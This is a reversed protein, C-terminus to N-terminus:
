GPILDPYKGSRIEGQFRFGFQSCFRSKCTCELSFSDPYKKREWGVLLRGGSGLLPGLPAGIPRGVGSCLRTACAPGYSLFFPVSPVGELFTGEMRMRSDNGVGQKNGTVESTEVEGTEIRM